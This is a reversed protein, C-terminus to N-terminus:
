GSLPLCVETVLDDPKTDQPHNLYNEYAPANRPEEGSERLWVGYLYDYAASLGAYPGVFRLVGARGGALTIDEMDEPVSATEPVIVGAHSRLDKAATQHPDDYYVGIMGRAYPWLNRASFITACKDFCKGVENYPGRHPIAALRYDPENRITVDFMSHDKRDPFPLPSVHEGRKRFAGPSLGYAERFARAFSAPQPYACAAGVEELSMDTQVLWCAARHMRMRRVAQACTEGTMSRFVRHWHFRSMAAVDALRDLSLDEAPHDYIYDRVRHLRDEYSTSLM